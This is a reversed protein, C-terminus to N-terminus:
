LKLARCVAVPVRHRGGCVDSGYTVVHWTRGLVHFVIFVGAQTRGVNAPHRFRQEADAWGINTVRANRLFQQRLYFGDAHHANAANTM